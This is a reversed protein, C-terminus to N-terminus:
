QQSQDVILLHEQAVGIVEYRDFFPLFVFTSKALKANYGYCKTCAELNIAFSCAALFFLSFVTYSFPLANETVQYIPARASGSTVLLKRGNADLAM